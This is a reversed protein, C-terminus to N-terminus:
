CLFFFFGLVMLVYELCDIILFRSIVKCAVFTFVIFGNPLFKNTGHERARALM